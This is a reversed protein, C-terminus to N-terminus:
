SIAVSVTHALSSTGAGRPDTTGGAQIFYDVGDPTVDGGPITATWTGPEAGATMPVAIYEGTRHHRYLLQAGKTGLITARVPIDRGNVQQRVTSHYIVGTASPLPAGSDVGFSGLVARLTAVADDPSDVQSLNFSLLVTQFGNHEANADVHTGLLQGDRDPKGTGKIAAVPGATGAKTKAVALTDMFPRVAFPQLGITRGGLLDGKPVASVESGYTDTDVTAAGFYKRLFDGAGDVELAGAVRDSTLLLKGGGDLYQAIAARDAEDLQGAGRDISSEWVVAQYRAMTAADVHRTVIAYPVGLAALAGTTTAESDLMGDDDVVLVKPDSPGAWGTSRQADNATEAQKVDLPTVRTVLDYPGEATPTYTFGFDTREYAGLTVDGASVLNGSGDTVTVHVMGPAVGGNSFIPVTMPNKQGVNV